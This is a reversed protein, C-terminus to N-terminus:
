NGQYTDLKYKLTVTRGTWGNTEMDEELEEAVEELKELIKQKDGLPSFTRYLRESRLFAKSRLDCREAGISKREDRQHPQVINSAVGLYTRLLFGLGFHKDMLYIAARHTFIDGCTELHYENVIVVNVIIYSVKVEISDLLRENVRGVGPIKRIPLDRMFETISRADFPLHFQGNPKNQDLILVIGAAVISSGQRFMDLSCSCDSLKWSASSDM